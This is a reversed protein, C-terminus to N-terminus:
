RGHGLVFDQVRANKETTTHGDWPKSHQPMHWSVQGTPLEIYAVPWEPEEPDIRFGVDMGASAARGMAMYVLRNREAYGHALRARFLLARLSIYDPM